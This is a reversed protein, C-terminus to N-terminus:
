SASPPGETVESNGHRTAPGGNPAASPQAHDKDLGEIRELAKIMLERLAPYATALAQRLVPIAAVAQGQLRGLSETAAWRLISDGDRVCESLVPVLVDSPWKRLRLSYIASTSVAQDQLAEILVPLIRPDSFNGLSSIVSSRLPQNTAHALELLRPLATAAADGYCGLAVAAEGQVGPIRDELCATLAPICAEPAARIAGLLSAARWRMMHWDHQLLAIVDPVFQVLRSRQMRGNRVADALAECARVQVLGNSDRVLDVLALCAEEGIGSMACTIYNPHKAVLRLLDPLASLAKSGLAHFARALKAARGDRLADRSFEELLWPLVAVGMAAFAQKAANSEAEPADLDLHRLWSKASRGEYSPITAKKPM